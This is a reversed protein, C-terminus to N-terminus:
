CSVYICGDDDNVIALGSHERMGIGVQVVQNM